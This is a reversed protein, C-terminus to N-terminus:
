ESESGLIEKLKKRAYYLRSMVSGLPIGISEAIKEYSLDEFHRLIIIERQEFSLKEIAKWVREKNRDSELIYDPSVAFDAGVAEREDQKRRRYRLRVKGKKLHNKALNSLITYFWSFFPKKEDYKKRSNYIRIFAEQSIDQADAPDGVLKLALLYAKKGNREVLAKFAQLDNDKTLEMLKDNSFELYREDM